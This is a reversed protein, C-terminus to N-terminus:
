NLGCTEDDPEGGTFPPNSMVASAQLADMLEGAPLTKGPATPMDQITEGGGMIDLQELISALLEGPTYYALIMGRLNLVSLLSVSVSVVFSTPIKRCLGQRKLLHITINVVCGCEHLPSVVIRAKLFRRM